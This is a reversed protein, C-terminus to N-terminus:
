NKAKELLIKLFKKGYTTKFLPARIKEFRKLSAKSNDKSFTPKVRERDIQGLSDAFLLQLYLDSSNKILELNDHVGVLNAIQEVEDNTFGGLNKLLEKSIIAGLRMHEKKIDLNGNPDFKFKLQPYAVDHLYIAPILIKPNGGEYKLLEKMWFVCALTHPVDWNARGKELYKLVSLKLREELEQSFEM